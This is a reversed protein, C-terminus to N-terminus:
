EEEPEYLCYLSQTGKDEFGGEALEEYLERTLSLAPLDLELEDAAEEALKMDKIYHKVFFGPEFDNKLIRPGYNALSWSNASGGAMAELLTQRDLGCEKAFTLAECMGTMTGAIAIQNALKANQGSGSPGMYKITRGM